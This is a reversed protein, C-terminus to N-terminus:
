KAFVFLLLEGWRSQEVSPYNRGLWQLHPHKAYGLAQYEAPEREFMIFFVREAEGVATQPDPSAPLELVEQTAPALTDSGSFPPDALYKHDLGPEYYVSPIATLKNSHLIIDGPKTEQVLHADLEVFPAYPFGRYTHYSLLGLAFAAVLGARGTWRLLSGMWRGELAWGIWLAFAAGAPLVARNLYVPRWFSVLLMLIVPASGLYALWLARRAEKAGSRWARVTAWVAAVLVLVVCLLLLLLLPPLWEPAWSPSWDPVPLWGVYVLLTQVLDQPRPASIWYARDIRALQSPLRMLWPLYLLAAALGSVATQLLAKWKRLLLSTLGLALLYLAALNHTYLALGSLLAFLLWPWWSRSRIARWFVLTAGLLLLALLGYMRVEQAYHVQFPSLALVVGSVTAARSDFLRRALGYGLMVVGLGILLALSRVALPSTGVAKGWLWLLSYYLLPHVDAAVGGEVELTGYLMQSPGKSSFLVAFAEDYWLPKTLLGPLRVVLALLLILLWPKIRGIRHLSM